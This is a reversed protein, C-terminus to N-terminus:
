APPVPRHRRPLSLLGVLPPFFPSLPPHSLFPAPAQPPPPLSPYWHCDTHSPDSPPLSPPLTVARTLLAHSHIQTRHHRFHSHFTWAWLLSSTFSLAFSLLFLLTSPLLLSSLLLLFLLKLVSRLLLLVLRCVSPFLLVCVDPVDVSSTQSHTPAMSPPPTPFAFGTTSGVEVKM